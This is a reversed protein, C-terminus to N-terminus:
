RGPYTPSLTRIIIAPRRETWVNRNANSDGTIVRRRIVPGEYRMLINGAWSDGVVIDTFGFIHGDDVICRDDVIRSYDIIIARCDIVVCDVVRGDVIRDIVVDPVIKDHTWVRM